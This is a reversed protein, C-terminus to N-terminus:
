FYVAGEAPRQARYASTFRINKTALTSHKTFIPSMEVSYENIRFARTDLSHPRSVNPASTMTLESNPARNSGVFHYSAAPEQHHQHKSQKRPSHFYITRSMSASEKNKSGQHKYRYKNVALMSSTTSTSSCRQKTNQLSWVDDCPSHAPPTSTSMDQHRSFRAGLDYASQTGIIALMPSTATSSASRGSAHAARRRWWSMLSWRSNTFSKSPQKNRRPLRRFTSWRSDSRKSRNSENRGFNLFSRFNFFFLLFKIFRTITHCKKDILRTFSFRQPQTKNNNNNDDTSKNSKLSVNEFTTQISAQPQQQKNNYNNNSGKLTM